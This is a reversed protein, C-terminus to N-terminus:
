SILSSVLTALPCLIHSLFPTRFIFVTFCLLLWPLFFSTKRLFFYFNKLVASLVWIFGRIVHFIIVKSFCTWCFPLLLLSKLLSFSPLLFYLPLCGICTTKWFYGYHFVLVSVFIWSHVCFICNIHSQHNKDISGFATTTVWKVPSERKGFSLTKKEWCFFTSKPWTDLKFM